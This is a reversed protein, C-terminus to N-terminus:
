QVRVTGNMGAHLTCNYSYTAAAAPMVATRAGSSFNGISTISNNAFTVNHDIGDNNTFTVTASPAVTIAPPVFQSGTLSVSTTAVPNTGGGGGGGGGPNGTGTTDSGSGGCGISALLLTSFLASRM